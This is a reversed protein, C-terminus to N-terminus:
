LPVSPKFNFTCKGWPFTFIETSFGNFNADGSLQYNGLGDAKGSGSVSDFRKFNDEFFTYDDGGLNTIFYRKTPGIESDWLGSTDRLRLSNSGRGSKGDYSWKYQGDTFLGNLPWGADEIIRITKKKFPGVM